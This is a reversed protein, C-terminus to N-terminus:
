KPPGKSTWYTLMRASIDAASSERTVAAIYSRDFGLDRLLHDDLGRLLDYAAKADQRQRYRAVLRRASERIARAAAAISAGLSRARRSKAAQHVEYSTPWGATAADGFGSAASAYRAWSEADCTSLAPDDCTADNDATGRRPIVLLPTDTCVSVERDAVERALAFDNPEPRIMGHRAQLLHVNGKQSMM